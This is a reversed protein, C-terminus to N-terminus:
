SKWIKSDAKGLGVIVINLPIYDNKCKVIGLNQYQVSCPISTEVVYVKEPTTEMRQGEYNHDLFM